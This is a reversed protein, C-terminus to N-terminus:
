RKLTGVRTQVSPLAFIVNMFSIMLGLFMGGIVDTAWHEGLSIRSFMTLFAVGGLAAGAGLKILQPVKPSTWIVAAITTVAFVVRMSHGSPYSSVDFVHLEPFVFETPHRYFMFPPPPQFLIEKGVIELLHGIFLLGLSTIALLWRRMLLLFITLAPVIIQFKALTGFWIFYEDLKHPVNQQIRVTLDFDLSRLLDARVLITTIAFASGCTVAAALCLAIVVRHYKLFSTIRQLSSM